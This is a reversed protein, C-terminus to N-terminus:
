RRYDGPPPPAFDGDTPFPRPYVPTPRVYDEIIGARRLNARTDYYITVSRKNNGRVFNVYQVASDIDRGYGTGTGGIGSSPAYAKASRDAHGPPSAYPGSEKWRSGDATLPVVPRYDYTQEEVAILGIVGVNEPRGIRSAYSNNREQFSFAAVRDLNRRWGKIDLSSNADVVYGADGESAPKGSIVSLGNVSVIAAIRRPGNNTVRLSYEVGWYPVPLYTNGGHHVISMTQGDRLVDLSVSMGRYPRYPLPHYYLGPSQAFASPVALFSLFGGLLLALAFGVNRSRKM